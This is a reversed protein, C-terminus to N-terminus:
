TRRRRVSPDRQHGNKLIQGFLEGFIDDVRHILQAIVLQM